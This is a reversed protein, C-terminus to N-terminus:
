KAIIFVSVERSVQCLGSPGSTHHVQGLHLIHPVAPSGSALGVADLELGCLAAAHAVYAVATPAWRSAKAPASSPRPHIMATPSNPLLVTSGPVTSDVYVRVLCHQSVSQVSM